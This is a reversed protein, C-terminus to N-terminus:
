YIKYLKQKKTLYDTPKEMGTGSKYFDVVDVLYYVSLMGIFMTSIIPEIWAQLVRSWPVKFFM